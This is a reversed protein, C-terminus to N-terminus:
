NGLAEPEDLFCDRYTFWLSSFFMAAVMLAMPLLGYTAIATNGSMATLMLLALGGAFSMLVWLVGYLLFAPMNRVMAVFSFFLSKVPPVGHWHVLAPAHWFALSVPLYLLTSVWLANRFQPDMLLEGTLGGGQVYFQAFQGGDLLASAAVVGMVAMAYFMGLTLMARSAQSGQRFAAILCSPMPFRGAQVEKSAEMLGLTAAPVLVMALLGGVLPLLAVLSLGTMFMFFLGGMALPQRGFIRMGAYVWSVGARPSVINLKM